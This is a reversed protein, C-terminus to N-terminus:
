LGIDENWLQANQAIFDRMLQKCEQLDLNIVHVGQSVLYESAGHFTENEGAVVNKIGFLLIAGTCLQCPMLTSYLTIDKYNGIRGADRLCEIEAHATPDGHQVRRNHGRGIIMGGRVLVSGIPIGREDRSKRAQEIAAHMFQDIDQSRSPM